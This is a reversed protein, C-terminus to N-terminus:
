QCSEEWSRLCKSKAACWSYGASGICGHEDRDGGVITEGCGSAPMPSNPNGHKIWQNNQCVWSDEPGGFVFRVIFAAVLVILAALFLKKM